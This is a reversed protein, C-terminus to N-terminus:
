EGNVRNRDGLSVVIWIRLLIEGRVDNQQPTLLSALKREFARRAGACVAAQVPSLGEGNSPIIFRAAPIGARRVENLSALLAERLARAQDAQLRLAATGLGEAFAALLRDTSRDDLSAQFRVWAAHDSGIATRAALPNETGLCPDVGMDRFASGLEWGLERVQATRLALDARAAQPLSPLPGSLNRVTTWRGSEVSVSRGGGEVQVIGDDVLVDAEWPSVVDVSFRTGVVRVMGAPTEVAFTGKGKPVDFSAGGAALAVRRDRGLSVLDLRSGEALDVRAEGPLTLRARAGPATEVANGERLSSGAALAPMGRIGGGARRLSGEVAEVRAVPGDFLRTWGIWAFGVAAAAAVGAVGAWGWGIRRRRVAPKRAQAVIERDVEAAIRDWVAPSPGLAPSAALRGILRDLAGKRAACAPCAALHRGLAGSEEGELLGAEERPLASGAENCDM